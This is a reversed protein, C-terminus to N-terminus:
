EVSETFDEPIGRPWGLWGVRHGHYIRGPELQYTVNKADIDLVTAWAMAGVEFAPSNSSVTETILDGAMVIWKGIVTAHLVEGAHIQAGISYEFAKLTIESEYIMDTRYTITEEVVCSDTTYTEDWKGILMDTIRKDEAEMDQSHAVGLCLLTMVAVFVSFWFFYFLSSASLKM